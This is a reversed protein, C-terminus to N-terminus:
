DEERPVLLAIAQMQRTNERSLAIAEGLDDPALYFRKSAVNAWRRTLRAQDTLQSTCRRFCDLNDM